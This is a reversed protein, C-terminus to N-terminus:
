TRMLLLGLSLPVSNYVRLTKKYVQDESIIRILYPAKISHLATDTVDIDISTDVEGGTM